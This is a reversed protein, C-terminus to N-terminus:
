GKILVFNGTGQKDIFIFTQKPNNYNWTEMIYGLDTSSREIKYPDGFKIYIKGRDTSLGTRKSLGRFELAAYDIRSYFEEMVENYETKPTPDFEKWYEHLLKPYEKSDSDLLESVREDKEIYQLMEIAFESNRLSIPKNIWEVRISFDREALKDGSSITLILLGETLTQSFNRLIFNKTKQVKDDRGIYLKGNCDITSIGTIYSETVTQSIPQEDNNVLEINISEITTDAIPIIVQYEQPSFPISGGYNVARPLNKDSCDSEAFSIIIPNFIKTEIYESGKIDIPSLVIEKESQLDSVMGNIRYDNAELDINIVGEISAAKSQTIEFDPVSIKRDEFDRKILEDGSRVEVMLRASSKFENGDKEFVLFRYPIRYLYSVSIISDSSPIVQVTPTLQHFNRSGEPRKERQQGYIAASFM